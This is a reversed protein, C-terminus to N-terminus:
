GAGDLYFERNEPLCRGTPSSRHNKRLSWSHVAIASRSLCVGQGCQLTTPASFRCPQKYPKSSLLGCRFVTRARRTKQLLRLARGPQPRVKLTQSASLIRRSLRVAPARHRNRCHATAPPMRAAMRARSQWSLSRVMCRMQFRNSRACLLIRVARHPRQGGGSHQGPGRRIGGVPPRALGRGDAPRRGRRGSGSRRRGVYSASRRRTPRDTGECYCADGIARGSFRATM